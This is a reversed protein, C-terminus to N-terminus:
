VSAIIGVLILAFFVVAINYQIWKKTTKSDSDSFFTSHANHSNNSKQNHSIPVPDPDPDVFQPSQYQVPPAYNGTNYAMQPQNGYNMPPQNSFMMQPQNGYNQPQNGYNMPPQNGYNMPPQNGYNQPQNGYNMPPQNGYNMPPQNGYNMQPQNTNPEQNMVPEFSMGMQNGNAKSIATQIIDNEPQIEPYSYPLNDIIFQIAEIEQPSCVSKMTFFTSNLQERTAGQNLVDLFRQLNPPAHSM